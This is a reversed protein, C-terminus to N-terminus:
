RPASTAALEAVRRCLQKLHRDTEGWADGIAARLAGLEHQMRYRGRQNSLNDDHCLWFSLVVPDLLEQNAQCRARVAYFWRTDSGKALREDFRVARAVESRIGAGNFLMSGRGDHALCRSTSPDVFWSRTSGAIARSGRLASVLHALRAPHQWDDDDFWAVIQGRAAALALNRKTPVNCELPAPIVRVDPREIRWPVSSSDVVVLERNQHSQRDFNWLLWDM